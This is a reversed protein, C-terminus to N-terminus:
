LKKGCCDFCPASGYKFLYNILYVVDGIEVDGDCNADGKCFPDPATGGKYLWHILYTVDSIDISIDEYCDGCFPTGVQISVQHTGVADCADTASFSCIWTGTDAETPEWTFLAPNGGDFSPPNTPAQLSDPEYWLADLMIDSISDGDEDSASVWLGVIHDTVANWTDPLNLIPANNVLLINFDDFHTNGDTSRAYVRAWGGSQCHDTVYYSVLGMFEHLGLPTFPVIDVNEVGEGFFDVWVSAINYGPGCDYWIEFPDTEYFGNMNHSQDDVPDLFEPRM